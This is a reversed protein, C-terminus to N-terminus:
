FSTGDDFTVGSGAPLEKWGGKLGWWLFAPTTGSTTGGSPYDVESNGTFSITDSVVSAKITSNGTFKITNGGGATVGYLVSGIGTTNGTISLIAQKNDYLQFMTPDTGSVYSNGTLSDGTTNGNMWIRVLGPTGGTSKAGTDAIITSNGTVKLNTFYYDGPPLIVTNNGAISFNPTPTPTYLATNSSSMNSFSGSGTFKRMTGNAYHSSSSIWSWGSPSNPFAAVVLQDVTPWQAADPNKVVNSGGPGTAGSGDLYINGTITTNGTESFSGNTGTAGVIKSNGVLSVSKVGFVAYDDFLTDGGAGEAQLKRSIGNVTGTATLRLTASGITWASGSDQTEYVSFTGPVGSVSGSAPNASGHVVFGSAFQNASVYRLESNIGAEAIQLAASNDSERLALSYHGSAFVAIGAMLTAFIATFVIATVLAAGSQTRFQKTSQM